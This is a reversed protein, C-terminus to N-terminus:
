PHENQNRMHDALDALDALAQELRARLAIDAIQESM